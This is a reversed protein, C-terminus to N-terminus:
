SKHLCSIDAVQLFLGRLRSLLAIRNNRVIPDDAMVLVEDFFTDINDKMGSLKELGQQYKRSEFLPAVDLENLRIDEALVKEATDTLLSTDLTLQDINQDLKSLINAVRKNASSLAKAEPLKNFHNVANIRIDFDVPNTPRLVMVSQFVEAPIGEDQYWFRFRDLCFNFVENAVDSNATLDKYPEVAKEICFRIDLDLQKEILIRLVGIAARRLAFPDKSGTPPQGIAFLGAMTDLRDALALVSGTVTSPLNDGAHRPMYQEDLASAVESDEGDHLAYYKGMVGQLDAFEGVMATVLDCKCLMAARECADADAELLDAIVRSLSAVRLTKEYVTGLKQQFVVSKLRELRSELTQKKDTQYFFEADSLRPRIVRENGKIVQATDKSELNSVTIFNPLLKGEDDTVYFCKQHSKLSSVIAEAPVLLFESDFTGTLAVPWEVLATVEDLLDEDIVVTASINRGQDSILLRIKEKRTEFDAIVYGPSILSKEYDEVCSLIIADPHHFRHGYTCRGADKGLINAQVPESGFLLVIWHVPRVFEVRSSGWRMKKPIPLKNLSSSVIDALLASTNKGQVISRFVLKEVGDKEATELDKVDVGCSRAFGLAAPTHNGSEDLAAKLAPGFKEIRKDPQSEALANVVVALRRPTAFSKISDYQLGEGTLGSRIGSSFAVSLAKLAKPPLEETGIEILLDKRSM